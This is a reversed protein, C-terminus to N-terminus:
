HKQDNPRRPRCRCLSGSGSRWWPRSRRQRLARGPRWPRPNAREQRRCRSRAIVRGALQISGARRIRSDGNHHPTSNSWTPRVSGFSPYVLVQHRESVQRHYYHGRVELRYTAILRIIVCSLRAVRGGRLGVLDGNLM